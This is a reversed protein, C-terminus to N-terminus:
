KMDSAKNEAIVARLAEFGAESLQNFPARCKGVPYGLEAVAYKVITNPNGFKFCNRFSRISDQYVRAKDVNGAVFQDYIQSMTYPYVNSCGAIGGTGGALLTWLILSDNGSLVAFDKRERTQEIYQLITDFNGSSDKVGVINKIESLKGVTAPALANGTRAPINYLVIPMDVNEAITKYHQYLEDQSAQAFSPTIISIVDVGVEKAKQSLRITDKTGVLGTGAYVPVRGAVHKVTEEMIKIKEDESLIYAEGNTGFVFIGHVGHEILRDIQVRLEDFNISEDANMPTIIPSIIGKIETM